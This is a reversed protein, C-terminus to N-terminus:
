AANEPISIGNRSRIAALALVLVARGVYLAARWPPQSPNGGRRPRMVVPVQAVALGSRAAIITSEVTDGLYQAPYERAFLAVARPGSARFGSTTDTLSTRTMRSVARALVRMAFRRLGAADYDGRGAFRAGIVLDADELAAVLRPVERADHQGDADLQVVVDYGQEVAYRFGTRMAGGVGLNFPLRLVRAGAAAAEAATSDTSGDDVVLVAADPLTARAERVTPGVNGAENWAPVVILLSPHSM